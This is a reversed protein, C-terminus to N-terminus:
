YQRALFGFSVDFQAEVESAPLQTYQKVPDECIPFLPLHLDYIMYELLTVSSLIKKQYTKENYKNIKFVNFM